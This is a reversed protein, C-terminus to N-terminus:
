FDRPKLLTIPVLMSAQIGKGDGQPRIEFVLLVSIPHRDASPMVYTKFISNSKRKHASTGLSSQTRGDRIRARWWPSDCTSRLSLEENELHHRWRHSPIPSSQLRDQGETNQLLEHVLRDVHGGYVHRELSTQRQRRRSARGASHRDRTVAPRVCHRDVVAASQM